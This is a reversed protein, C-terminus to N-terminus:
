RLVTMRLAAAPGGADSVSVVYTGVPLIGCDIEVTGAPAERRSESVMRGSLDYIRLLVTGTEGAVEVQASGHVPNGLLRATLAPAPPEEIGLGGELSAYIDWNGTTAFGAWAIVGDCLSPTWAPGSPNVLQAAPTWGSGTLTSAWVQAAVGRGVQWAIVPAGTPSAGVSPMCATQTPSTYLVQAPEWSSGGWRRVHIGAGAGDEQWALFLQGAAVGLVPARAFSGTSVVSPVAFGSANGRTWMIRDGQQDSRVWAAHLFGSGEPAATPAFDEGGQGSLFTEPFSGATAKVMIDGEGRRWTQWVLWLRDTWALRPDVNYGSGSVATSVTPFGDGHALRIDYAYDSEEFSSWALWPQGSGDFALSPTVDWYEDTDVVYVQSWSDGDWRRAAIDLRSTAGTMWAFWIDDGSRAVAPYCDSRPSTSVTAYARPAGTGGQWGLGALPRDASLPEITPDGLLVCGYHWAPDSLGVSNMWGRFAPGPASGSGIPGYFTEFELMSGTKTSGIALQTYDTGFVYWNGLCNPETWRCNSCAFLQVFVTQPNLEAIEPAMVTGSYGTSTKFTHGWPSSHSMLHVFEYGYSLRDRYYAATTADPDGYVNVTSYIYDLGCDGSTWWDDDNFAMARPPTAMSGTRYLHNKDLFDRLMAVEGGFEVAHADIRGIWIEANRNGTHSDFMGDSDSDTWVGNLDMFYLDLPFEEHAGGWEDMEYWAAPLWGIFIAGGLGAHGQLMARLDAATGGSMVVTTVNYGEAELDQEFRALEPALPTQVSASVVVMIESDGRDDRSERIIEFSAPHAELPCRVTLDYGPADPGGHPILLSHAAILAQVAAHM